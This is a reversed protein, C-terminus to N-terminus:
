AFVSAGGTDVADIEAQSWTMRQFRAPLESRDFYQGKPPEIPGLSGGSHGGIAGGASVINPRHTLPGHQQAKSRYSVFSDPLNDAPSEPHVQPSHDVSKPPERKGLFHIMPTRHQAVAAQQLFRTAKMAM